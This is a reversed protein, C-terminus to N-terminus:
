QSFHLILSVYNQGIISPGGALTGDVIVGTPEWSSDWDNPKKKKWNHVKWHDIDDEKETYM